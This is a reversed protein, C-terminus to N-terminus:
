IEVRMKCSPLLGKRHDGNQLPFSCPVGELPAATLILGSQGSLTNWVGWHKM